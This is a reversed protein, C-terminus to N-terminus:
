LTRRDLIEYYIVAKKLDFSIGGGESSGTSYADDYVQEVEGEFEAIPNNDAAEKMVADADMLMDKAEADSMWQVSKGGPAGEEATVMAPGAATESEEEYQDQDEFMESLQDGPREEEEPSQQVPKKKRMSLVLIVITILVYIFSELFGEM